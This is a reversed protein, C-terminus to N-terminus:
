VVGVGLHYGLPTGFLFGRSEIAVIKDIHTEAYRQRLTDIVTRFGEPDSLLPTIDRFLIGPKPFDPIDRILDKLNASM